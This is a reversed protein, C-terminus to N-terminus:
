VEYKGERNLKREMDDLEAELDAVKAATLLACALYGILFGIVLWLYWMKIEKEDADSM